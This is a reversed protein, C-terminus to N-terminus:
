STSSRIAETIEWGTLFPWPTYRSGQRIRAPGRQARHGNCRVRQYEFDRYLPMARDLSPLASRYPRHNKAVQSPVDPGLIAKVEATTRIPFKPQYM